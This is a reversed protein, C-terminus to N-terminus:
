ISWESLFERKREIEIETKNYNIQNELFSLHELFEINNLNQIFEKLEEYITIKKRIRPIRSGSSVISGTYFDLKKFFEIKSNKAMIDKLFDYKSNNFESVTINFILRLVREDNTKNLLYRLFSSGSDGSGKFVISLESIVNHFIFPFKSVFIVIYEFVENRNHLDWLKKFDNELFDKKSIFTKDGFNLELLRNIFDPKEGLILKLVEFNYDFHNSKADLLLYLFQIDEIRELFLKKYNEYLYKFFDNDIFFNTSSSKKILHDIILNIEQEISIDLVAFKMLITEICSIYNTEKDKFFDDFITFDQQIIFDKPIHMLFPIICYKPIENKVIINRLEQVKLLDYNIEKFILGISLYNSYEYTFVLKLVKIFLKFDSNELQIFINSISEKITSYGIFYKPRYRSISDIQRLLIVYNDLQFSKIYKYLVEKKDEARQNLLYWLDVEENKFKEKIKKDYTINYYKLNKLYRYVIETERFNPNPLFVDFFDIVLRKDFKIIIDNKYFHNNYTHRDFFDYVYLKLYENKFSDFIFRWLKTRFNKHEKSLQLPRQGIYMKDGDWDRTEYSDVLYKHAIFLIIKSYFISDSARDYLFDFLKIQINYNSNYNYKGYTYSQTFVKLLKSFHLQSLLGYKLIVNLSLIFKDSFQQFNILVEFINDEYSELHNDKFIEFSFNEFELDNTSILGNIYILSETPLYFWFDKLFRLSKNTEKVSKWKSCIDDVIFLKIEDFGYNSIIPSLLKMLSFKNEDIYLDLLLKFPIQKQKIFVLYFIYEGLIQDSIKYANKYEDAIEYSHLTELTELLKNKSIDFYKEIEEILLLNSFDITRFLSLIGSVKILEKDVNLQQNVSSFYEELILSANQLKEIEGNIGAIAAMVAIRPNGKSISYIKNSYFETINFDSSQLIKILDDREFNKLEILNYSVLLRQIENKVYNRVTFILKINSKNFDNKFNIILDLNSKLKNADDIVIIYNNGQILQIKLDEWIDLVGNAKIYKISYEANEIFKNVLELTFKTKGVGAQGSIILLDNRELFLISQKLEEERNFFQNSLPTAFKSKEYQSVFESLSLIQGTDINVGLEKAISPYEKFIITSFADIGIVELEVSHNITNKYANLEEQIATTIKNNCMLIIRLIKEAPVDQQKFCHEIDQKLKPLLRKKDTTTIENFIYFDKCPIFNDPTGKKSKEKGLVFGSSNVIDYKYALYLRCLNAFKDGNCSALKQEILTIM